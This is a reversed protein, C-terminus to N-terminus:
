GRESDREMEMETAAAGGGCFVARGNRSRRVGVGAGTSSVFSTM